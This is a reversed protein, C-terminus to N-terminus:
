QHEATIECNYQLSLLSYRKDPIGKLILIYCNMTEFTNAIYWGENVPNGYIKTIQEVLTIYSININSIKVVFVPKSKPKGLISNLKDLYSGNSLHALSRM